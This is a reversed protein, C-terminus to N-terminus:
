RDPDDPRVGYARHAESIRAEISREPFLRYSPAMIRAAHAVRIRILHRVPYDPGALALVPAAAEAFGPVNSVILEATGYCKWGRQRFVDVFSVCARPHGRLNRLSHASAIDAILILDEGALTWIEKPSTSPEGGADVTALWCLVANSADERQSDDFRFSM